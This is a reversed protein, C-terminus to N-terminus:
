SSFKPLFRLDLYLTANNGSALISFNVSLAKVDIYAIPNSDPLSLYSPPTAPNALLAEAGGLATLAGTNGVIYILYIKHNGAAPLTLPAVGITLNGGAFMRGGSPATTKTYAGPKFNVKTDVPSSEYCRLCEISRLYSNVSNVGIAGDDMVEEHVNKSPTGPTLSKMKYDIGWRQEADSTIDILKTSGDAKFLHPGIGAGGADVAHRGEEALDAANYIHGGQRARERVDQRLEHFDQPGLSVSQGVAPFTEDWLRTVAM